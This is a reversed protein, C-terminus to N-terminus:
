ALPTKEVPTSAADQYIEINGLARGEEIGATDRAAHLLAGHAALGRAEPTDGLREGDPSYDDHDHRM